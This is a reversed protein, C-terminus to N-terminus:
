FSKKQKDDAAHTFIQDILINYFRELFSYYDGKLNDFLNERVLFQRLEDFTHYLDDVHQRSVTQLISGERRFYHYKGSKVFVIKGAKAFAKFNFSSEEYYRREQFLLGHQKLFSTRYLKNAPSPSVKIGFEYQNTLIHLATLGDLLYERDYSSLYNGPVEGYDRLLSCVAIDAKTDIIERYMEELTMLDLWNDSDCFHIYTGKAVSLGLNRVGGLSLQNDPRLYSIRNDRQYKEILSNINGESCDNVVIVELDKFSQNLISSICKEFYPETNYVPIIVSIKVKGKEDM